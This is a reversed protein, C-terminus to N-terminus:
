ARSILAYGFFARVRIMDQTLLPPAAFAKRDQVKSKPHFSRCRSYRQEEQETPTRKANSTNTRRVISTSELRNVKSERSLVPDGAVELEPEAHRPM